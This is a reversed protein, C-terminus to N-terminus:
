PLYIVCYSTGYTMITEGLQQQLDVRAASSANMSHLEELVAANPTIKLVTDSLRTVDYYQSFASDPENIFRYYTFYPLEEGYPEGELARPWSDLLYITGDNHFEEATFFFAVYHGFNGCRLPAPTQLTGVSVGMIVFRADPHGHSCLYASLEAFWHWNNQPTLNRMILPHADDDSAYASFLSSASIASEIYRIETVPAILERLTVASKKPSTVATYFYAPEITDSFEPKIMANMLELLLDPVNTEPTGLLATVSNVVSAPLCGASRFPQWHYYHSYGQLREDRQSIIDLQVLRDAATEALATSGLMCLLLLLSLFRKLM